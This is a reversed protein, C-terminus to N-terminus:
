LVWTVPYQIGYESKPLRCVSFDGLVSGPSPRWTSQNGEKIPWLIPEIVRIGPLTVVCDAM